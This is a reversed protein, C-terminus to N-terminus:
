LGRLSVRGLTSDPPYPSPLVACSPVLVNRGAADHLFLGGALCDLWAIWLYSRARSRRVLHQIGFGVYTYPLHLSRCWLQRCQWQGTERCNPPSDGIMVNAALSGDMNASAADFCASLIFVGQGLTESM